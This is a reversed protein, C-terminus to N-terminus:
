SAARQKCMGLLEGVPRQRVAPLRENVHVHGRLHVGQQVKAVGRIVLAEAGEDHLVVREGPVLEGVVALVKELQRALAPVGHDSTGKIDVEVHLLQRHLLGALQAGDEAEFHLRILEHLGDVLGHYSCLSRNSSEADHM